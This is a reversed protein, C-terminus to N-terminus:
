CYRDVVVVRLSGKVALLSERALTLGGTALVGALDISCVAIWLAGCYLVERLM